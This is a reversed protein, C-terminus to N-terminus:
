PFVLIPRLTYGVLLCVTAKIIPYFHIPTDSKAESLNLNEGLLFCDVRSSFYFRFKCFCVAKRRNGETQQKVTSNNQNIFGGVYFM